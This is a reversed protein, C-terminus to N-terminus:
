KKSLANWGCTKAIKAAVDEVDALDFVVEVPPTDIRVSLTNDNKLQKIFPVSEEDSWLGVSMFNASREWLTTQPVEAGTQHTVKATEAASSTGTTIIASTTFNQCRLGLAVSNLMVIKNESGRPLLFASIQADGDIASGAESIHWGHSPSPQDSKPFLGDFCALRQASDEIVSCTDPSTQAVANPTWLVFMAMGTMITRM